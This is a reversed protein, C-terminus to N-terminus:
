LYVSYPTRIHICPIYTCLFLGLPNLHVGQLGYRNSGTMCGNSALKVMKKREGYFPFGDKFPLQMSISDDDQLRRQLSLPTLNAWFICTPAYM